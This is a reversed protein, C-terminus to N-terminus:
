DKTTATTVLPALDRELARQSLRGHAIVRGGVFLAPPFAVRGVAVLRRGEESLLDVERVTLPLRAALEALVARGHECHRCDPATLFTIELRDGVDADMM